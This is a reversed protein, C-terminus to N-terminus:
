MLHRMRSAFVKKWAVAPSSLRASVSTPSFMWSPMLVAMARRVSLSMTMASRWATVPSNM